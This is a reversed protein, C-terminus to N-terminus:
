KPAGARSRYGKKREAAKSVNDPREIGYPKMGPAGAGPGVNAAVGGSGLLLEVAERVEPSLEMMQAPDDRVALAASYPTLDHVLVGAARTAAYFELLEAARQPQAWLLAIAGNRFWHDVIDRHEAVSADLVATNREGKDRLINLFVSTLNAVAHVRLYDQAIQSEAAEGMLEHLWATREDVVSLLVVALLDDSNDSRFLVDLASDAARRRGLLTFAPVSLLGAVSGVFPDADALLPELCTVWAEAEEATMPARTLDLSRLAMFVGHRPVADSLYDLTRLRERIRQTAAEHVDTWLLGSVRKMADDVEGARGAYWRQYFESLFRLRQRATRDERMQMWIRFLRDTLDYYRSRGDPRGTPAIFREAELKSILATVQNTPMRCRKAIVAPTLRKGALAMEALVREAQPAVDQLRAQYYPTVADLLELLEKYLEDTVGARLVGYLAMVLRPNGGSFHYMARVRARLRDIKELLSTEHDWRARALILETVEEVSLDDLVITQFFDYFPADHDTTADIFSTASAVLVFPADRGLLERLRAHDRRDRLKREFLQRLNEVVVLIPKGHQKRWGRIRDIARDELDEAKVDALPSEDVAELRVVIQELLDGLSNVLYQEESLRAVAWGHDRELRLALVQTIHSKGSGRPGVIQWHRRTTRGADAVLDALLKDVQPRRAVLMADLEDLGARTPNYLLPGTVLAGALAGRAAAVM